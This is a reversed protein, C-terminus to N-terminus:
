QHNNAPIFGFVKLPLLVATKVADLVLSESATPQLSFNIALDQNSACTRAKSALRM